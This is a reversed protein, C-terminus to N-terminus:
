TSSEASREDGKREMVHNRVRGWSTYLLFLTLFAAFLVNHYDQLGPFGVIIFDTISVFSENLNSVEKINYHLPKVVAVYRDYAMAAVLLIETAGFSIVMYMQVFCAAFSITKHELFVALLKPTIATVMLIDLLALNWLFFYMPTHLQQDLIVLGLICLNGICTVLFLVLFFGFLINNYDQLGPFGILIFDTISETLNSM